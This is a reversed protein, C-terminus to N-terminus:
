VDLVHEFSEETEGVHVIGGADQQNCISQRFTQWIRLPEDQLLMAALEFKSRGGEVPKRAIVSRLEKVCLLMEEVPGGSFKRLKVFVKNSNSVKSMDNIRLEMDLHDENALKPTIEEPIFPILPKDWYSINGREAEAATRVSDRLTKIGIM